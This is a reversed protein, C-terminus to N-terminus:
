LAHAASFSWERPWCAYIPSLPMAHDTMSRVVVRDSRQSACLLTVNLPRVGARPCRGPPYRSTDHDNDCCRCSISIWWCREGSRSGHVLIYRSLSDGIWETASQPWTGGVARWLRRWDNKMMITTQISYTQMIRRYRRCSRLYEWAPHVSQTYCRPRWLGRCIGIAWRGLM